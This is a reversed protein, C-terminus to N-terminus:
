SVCRFGKEIIHILGCLILITHNGTEGIYSGALELVQMLKPQVKEQNGSQHLQKSRFDQSNVKSDSHSDSYISLYHKDYLDECRVQAIDSIMCVNYTIKLVYEPGM